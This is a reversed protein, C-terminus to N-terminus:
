QLKHQRLRERIQAVSLLPVSNSSYIDISAKQEGPRHQKKPLYPLTPNRLIYMDELETVHNSEEPTVLVEHLKEGPRIGIRTFTFESPQKTHRPAIEEILAHALDKIRLADMKLIFIEGHEAREGARLVLSVAESLSMFFRTMEDHTITIEKGRRIQERFIPIVSGRTGLVNGFRVCCFKVASEGLPTSTVIRESLLKTAGMTNIPNAAKDTSISIFREVNEKLAIEILNQTGVVNTSVAEFTNYECFPVHKLAAAHFVIDVDHMARAVREKDRIDGILHRILTHPHSQSLQFHGDENNDLVRIAKPRHAILQAVLETGISGCGGTVLITKGTFTSKM